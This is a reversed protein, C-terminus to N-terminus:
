IFIKQHSYFLIQKDHMNLHEVPMRTGSLMGGREKYFSSSTDTTRRIENIFVDTFHEPEGGEYSTLRGKVFKKLFEYSLPM